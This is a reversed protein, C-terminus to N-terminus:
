LFIAIFASGPRQTGAIYLWYLLTEFDSYMYLHLEFFLALDPPIPRLQSIIRSTVTCANRQLYFRPPQKNNSPSCLHARETSNVRDLPPPVTVRTYISINEKRSQHEHLTCLTAPDRGWCQRCSNKEFTLTAPSATTKYGFM